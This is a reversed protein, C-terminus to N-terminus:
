LLESFEKVSMKAQRLISKMTEAHLDKNHYPITVLLNAKKMQVHSGKTRVEIFGARGLAAIVEKPRVVPLKSM